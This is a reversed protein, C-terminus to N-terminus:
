DNNLMIYFNNIFFFYRYTKGILTPSSLCKCLPRVHVRVRIARVRM